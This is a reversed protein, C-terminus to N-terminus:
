LVQRSIDHMGGFMTENDVGFSRKRERKGDQGPSVFARGTRSINEGRRATHAVQTLTHVNVGHREQENEGEFRTVVPFLRKGGEGEGRKRVRFSSRIEEAWM